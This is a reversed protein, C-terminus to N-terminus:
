EGDDESDGTMAADLTSISVGLQKAVEARTYGRALMSAARNKKTTTMVRDSRPTALERVRDINANTLIDNLKSPSIAGAQIAEWERDSIEIKEKGAGMRNRADELAQYKIKRLSDKDLDPNAARKASVNANAIIQAQRELPANRKALALKSTLSSVEENYVKAASPSWKPTPTNLLSLRAENALSKLRNSHDAYLREMPTNADSILTRADKTEALKTSKITRPVRQGTKPDLRTRGTEVFVKEGTTPDIPGGLSQPRLKRDPVHQQSKARSILTAAGGRASGQYKEKLDKIGNDVASRKYDLNKKEADIVVMSHRVARAIENHSAAQLTMDTILNSVDGMLLQTNGKFTVGPPNKYNRVPDFDKLGELAPSTKIKGKENPIVLVTDGDFDAGSLRQAVSHHIGVADRANGLLKKAQAHKNNVTLEPIEFTGGHPYRILAVREGDNFNPAYIQTPPMKDIPLIVQWNQRDLAAAKLHVASADTGDAFKELLQKRVLPNTLSMITDYEDKRAAFTRDLQEKALKPSQKSLAQASINRNWQVWDGEENVLNMASTVKGNKKIQSVIAGFPLDPDDKLSKMADLDSKIDPDNKSKNTNFVLDVGDPLDDKYMAMGKLYRDKGVQIRVQAYRNNGLSLDEVGPRVYIVGDAKDGGDEAYQVKVRKPSVAIPTEFKSEFTRGGDNSVMSAQRIDYRKLWADKQTTGPPTLVKTQTDHTTGVQPIPVTHVQYGQEQLMAVATRLKDGSVKLHNEVGAGIDLPRDPASDVEEKLMNAISTLNDAKDKAGPALLARVSSENLGMKEGIAVNSLGKDKLKQAQAIQAQKWENRAISSAARLQTTSIGMGQAIEVSSLGQRKLDNVYDLFQKNRKNPNSSVREPGGSGWPYRGSRRLIGYHALHDEEDIIM